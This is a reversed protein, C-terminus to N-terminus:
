YKSISCNYLFTKNKLLLCYKRDFTDIYEELQWEKLIAHVFNRGECLEEEGRYVDKCSNKSTM